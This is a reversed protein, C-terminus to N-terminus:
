FSVVRGHVVGGCVCCFSIVPVCMLEWMNFWMTTKSVYHVVLATSFLLRVHVHLYM